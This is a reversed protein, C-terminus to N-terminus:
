RNAQDVAKEMQKVWGPMVRLFPADTQAPGQVYIIGGDWSPRNSWGPTDSFRPDRAWPEPQGVLDGTADIRAIYWGVGSRFIIDTSTLWLPETGTASVQVRRDLAPYPLVLVQGSVALWALHHRDPAMTPFGVNRAITDFRLPRADPDFVLISNSSFCGAIVLHEDHFDMPSPCEDAAVAHYLTDPPRAADPSGAVLSWHASDGLLVIIRNGRPSWLPHGVQEAQLWVQRRGDRLDYVRLEQHGLAQVVAALHRGDRSLDYRLFPAAEVPLPEPLQGRRLKVLRGTEANAGPAFVLTGSPTLDYQGAGTYAETRVGPVLTVARGVIGAAADFAAARLDGDLSLYVLYRGDVIRFHSGYVPAAESGSGSRSRVVTLAGTAPDVIHAFLFNGGGCLMRRGDPLLSPQICNPIAQESTQGVVSDLWRLREGDDDTALIRTPSVWDLAVFANGDVLRRPEGGEIPVIMIRSAAVFAVWRGDPSVRPAIGESTGAIPRATADVLSRYWLHTSDGRQVAYVVFEGNSAVSLNTMPSGFAVTATTAAFSMQASDPLGANFVRPAPVTSRNSVAWAAVAALVVVAAGLVVSVRRWWRQAMIDPFVAPGAHTPAALAASFAAASPFRDAPLKQLATQVAAVIAAPVTKRRSSVPPADKAVLSAIVAQATPAAHPPEGALMEYLVAGLSFVDSRADLERDATAQEPSMYQPTGPNLGTETLRRGGAQQVALAIGFDAVLARGDHLLINEPKIDRHIVGQRHAYDLASSVEMAIRVADAVAIQKERDLRDRLSEGEVYPMVYFLFSDAEGSDFLPLIHPNQLRATVEIEKLFREAGVVAALEPRLVKIAVRRRHRLDLALYVTAMGGAGLQREIRYRDALAAALREPIGSM